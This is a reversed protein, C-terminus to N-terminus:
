ERLKEDISFMPWQKLPKNFPVLAQTVFGVRVTVTVGPELECQYPNEDWQEASPRRAAHLARDM